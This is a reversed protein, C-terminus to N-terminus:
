ESMGQEIWTNFKSNVLDAYYSVKGSLDVHKSFWSEVQM